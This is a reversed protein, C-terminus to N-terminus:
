CYEDPYRAIFFGRALGLPRCFCSDNLRCYVWMAQQEHATKGAFHKGLSVPGVIQAPM